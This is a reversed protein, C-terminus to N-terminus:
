PVTKRMLPRATQAAGGAATHSAILFHTPHVVTFLGWCCGAGGLCHSWILRVLAESQQPARAQQLLAEQPHLQVTRGTGPAAAVCQSRM